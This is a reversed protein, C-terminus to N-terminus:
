PGSRRPLNSDAVFSDLIHRTFLWEARRSDLTFRGTATLHYYTRPRGNPGEQKYSEVAGQVELRKLATYLTTEKLVYRDATLESIEKSIEYGYSDSRDLVSLVMLDVWGRITDASLQVRDAARHHDM